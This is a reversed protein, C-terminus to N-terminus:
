IILGMDKLEIRLQEPNQYLLTNLGVTKAVDLLKQKNDIFLVSEADANIRNLVIEFAKPNNKRLRIDHSFFNGMSKRFIDQFKEQIYEAHIPNTDSFIYVPVNVSDYMALSDKIAEVSYAKRYDKEFEEPSKELIKAGELIFAAKSIDGTGFKNRLIKSEESGKWFDGLKPDELLVGGVDFLISKSTTM